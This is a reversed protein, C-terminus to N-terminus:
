ARIAPPAIRLWDFFAAHLPSPLAFRLYVDLMAATKWRVWTRIDDRPIGAAHMATVGGIRLCHSTFTGQWQARTLAAQLWGDVASSSCTEGASLAWFSTPVHAGFLAARVAVYSELAARVARTEPTLCYFTWDPFSTLHDTQGKLVSAAVQFGDPILRVHDSRLTALTSARFCFLFGITVALANRLDRALPQNPAAVSSLVAAVAAAPLAPRALQPNAPRMLRKFGQFFYHFRADGRPVPPPVGMLRHVTNIASVVGPFSAAGLQGDIALRAVFLAVAELSAPFAPLPPHHWKCFDVFRQFVSFYQASTSAALAGQLAYNLYARELPTASPFQEPLFVDLTPGWPNAPPDRIDHRGPPPEGM